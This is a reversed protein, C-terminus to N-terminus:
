QASFWADLAAILKQACDQVYGEQSPNRPLEVLVAAECQKALWQSLKGGTIYSAYDVDFADMFPSALNRTGYVCEIWGHVDVGWAPQIQEVLDRVARAEASAFPASGTRNRGNTYKKWRVSFDRNIDIGNANGRGFGNRTTGELLGDPNLCPVIYLAHGNLGSADAEYHAIVKEAIEVLVWGDHDYDDEFGHIAFTMLLSKEAAEDGLRVCTLDRGMESQGFVFHEQACASGAMLLCLLVALWKCRM